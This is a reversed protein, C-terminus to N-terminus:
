RLPQAIDCSRLDDRAALSLCSLIKALRSAGDVVGSDGATTAIGPQAAPLTSLFGPRPGVLWLFSACDCQRIGAGLSGSTAASRAGGGTDLFCVMRSAAALCV